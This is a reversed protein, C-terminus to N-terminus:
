AHRPLRDIERRLNARAPAEWAERAHRTLYISGRSLFPGLVGARGAAYRDDDVHAYEQRVAECYADFRAQDAALIWLDADHFTAAAPDDGVEHTVTELVLHRVRDVISGPVGLATLREGALDASAAEGSDGRTAHADYVADHFWAALRAVVEDEPTGGPIDLEDLADLVELLHTTDHYSRHPESWRALLEETLAEAAEIGVGLGGLDRM